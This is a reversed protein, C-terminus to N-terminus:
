PLEFRESAVPGREHADFRMDVGAHDLVRVVTGAARDFWFRQVSATGSRDDVELRWRELRAGDVTEEEELACRHTAPTRVCPHRPDDPATVATVYGHVLLEYAEAGAVTAEVATGDPMVTTIVVSAGDDSLRQLQVQTTGGFRWETRVAGEAVEIRGQMAGAQPHEAEVEVAFPEAFWAWTAAQAAGLLTACAAAVVVVMPTRLMSRTARQM